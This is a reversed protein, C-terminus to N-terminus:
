PNRNSPQRGRRELRQAFEEMILRYLEDGLYADEVGHEISPNDNVEIVYVKDDQQKLDVGYLGDGVVGAAKIAAKLVAQPVEFTPLTDFGGSTNRRRAHNYIQWHNRAMHYRCAYIAKGALVGIRWDFPTYCFQQALVLTTGALLQELRSNLEARNNVRFVGRSFSGEPLKLIMPYGFEAELAEIEAQSSGGVVRTSLAPVGQYSFADHLFVKNCCRLISRPDDMVVLGEREAQRALRYTSHDIATTERLFLADYQNIQDTQDPSIVEARIGVEAAGRVFRRIAAADSPPSEEDPNVLIALDWRLRKGDDASPWVRTTFRSLEQLFAKREQESLQAYSARKVRVRTEDSSRDLELQLIPAPFRRFVNRALKRWPESECRGFFVLVPEDSVEFKGAGPALLRGHDLGADIRDRERLDNITSVSPLVAHQRAEALLSCYYGRSLYHATDCLNIVRIRPEDIKPYDALYQEFSIWEVGTDPLALEHDDVVILTKRM